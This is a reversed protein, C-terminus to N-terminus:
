KKAITRNVTYGLSSLITVILGIAQDYSTGPEIVGSAILIGVLGTATSLWFETTKYGPKAKTTETVQNETPM